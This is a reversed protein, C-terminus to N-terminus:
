KGACAGGTNKIDKRCDWIEALKRRGAAADPFFKIPTERRAEEVFSAADELEKPSNGNLIGLYSAISAGALAGQAMAVPAGEIGTINGAVFLGKVPTEMYQSHLPISGGLEPMEILPCGAMSVLGTMPYLGGSLCVADAKISCNEGEHTGKHSVRATVVAEVKSEGEIRVVSTRLKLPIGWIKMTSLSSLRAGIDRYSGGFIKCALKMMTDPAMHASSSLKGIVEAPVGMDGSLVGPPPLYIGLVEAGAKKLEGAVTISLPDVGVVVVRKGPLVRHINAFVQAAGVTMVGPTTWGEVPLARESAGTTVLVARANIKKLSGGSIYVESGDSIHWASIGTMIRAGASLVDEVLQGSIARGNWLRKGLPKQPNEYLQGLLRGGARFYEDIVVVEIGKRALYLAASLGAPGGGVVAVETKM